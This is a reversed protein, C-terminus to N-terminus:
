DGSVEPNRAESPEERILAQSPLSDPRVVMRQPEFRQLVEGIPKVQDEKSRVVLVIGGEQLAEIYYAEDESSSIEASTAGTLLGTLSGLGAGAFVGIWVLSAGGTIAASAIGALGGLLTGWLSGQKLGEKSERELRGPMGLVQRAWVEHAVLGVQDFGLRELEHVAAEAKAEESFLVITLPM